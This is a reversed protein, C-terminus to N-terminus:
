EREVQAGESMSHRDYAMADFAALQSPASARCPGGEVGQTGNEAHWRLESLEAEM